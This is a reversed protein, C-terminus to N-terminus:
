EAGDFYYKVETKKRLDNILEQYAAMYKERSLRQKAKMALFSSDFNTPLKIETIKFIAYADNLFIIQSFEGVTLGIVAEQIQESLEQFPIFGLDKMKPEITSHNEPIEERTTFVAESLHFDSEQRMLEDRHEQLYTELEKPNIIVKASIEAQIFRRVMIQREIRHRLATPTLSEEKLRQYFRVPDPFLHMIREYEGEIDKQSVEVKQKKAELFILREEVLKEVVAKRSEGTQIIDQLDSSTIAEDGVRALLSIEARCVVPLFLCFVLIVLCTKFSWKKL